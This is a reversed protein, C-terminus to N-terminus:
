HSPSQAFSTTKKLFTSPCLYIRNMFNALAYYFHDQIVSKFVKYRHKEGLFCKKRSSISFRQVAIEDIHLYKRHKFIRIFM